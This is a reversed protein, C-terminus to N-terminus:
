SDGLTEGGRGRYVRAEREVIDAELPHGVAEHFLVGGMGPALVATMEGAPAPSADLMTVARKAAAEAHATPPYKEITELGAVAAPGHFGTQINGDRAAVASVVLRIR